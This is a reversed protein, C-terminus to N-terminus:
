KVLMMKRTLSGSTTDLRYFYLGSPLASGDFRAQHQGAGLPQDILTSVLRGAIDYVRLQVPGAQALSFGITTR